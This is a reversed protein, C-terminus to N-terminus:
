EGDAAVIAQLLPQTLKFDCVSRVFTSVGRRDLRDITEVIRRGPFASRDGEGCVTRLRVGDPRIRPEM